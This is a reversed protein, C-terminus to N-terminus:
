SAGALSAPNFPLTAMNPNAGAEVGHRIGVALMFAQLHSAARQSNAYESDKSFARYCVYDVLASAYQDPISINQATNLLPTPLAGYVTEVTGTGNQPPYAYFTRPTRPDYMWNKIEAAQPAAHWGPLFADMTDRAVLRVANGPDLGSVGMNRVVDLLLLCDAPLTQRTGAVTTLTHITANADPKSVVVDREGDSTWNVLEPDTWRPDGRDEDLLLIYARGLIASVPTSM